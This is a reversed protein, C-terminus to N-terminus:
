EAYLGDETRSTWLQEVRDPSVLIKDQTGATDVKCVGDSFYNEVAQKVQDKRRNKNLAAFNVLM